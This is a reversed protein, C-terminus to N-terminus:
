CSIVGHFGWFQSKKCFHVDLAYKKMKNKGLLFSIKALDNM